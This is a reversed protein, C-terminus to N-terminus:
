SGKGNEEQPLNPSFITFHFDGKISDDLFGWIRDNLALQLQFKRSPYTHIYQISKLHLIQNEFM